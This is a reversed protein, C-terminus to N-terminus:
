GNLRPQMFRDKCGPAFISDLRSLKFSAAYEDHCEVNSVDVISVMKILMIALIFQMRLM